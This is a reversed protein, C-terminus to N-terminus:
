AKAGKRIATVNDTAAPAAACYGAWANMLKVRKPFVSSRQYAEEVKDKLRHALAHEIVERPFATQEAAWVRFTSRFGHQTIGPRLNKLVKMGAATTMGKKLTPGPFVFDCAQPMAKLIAVARPSLPVVHEKHAKMREAPITWTKAQLDIEDWAAGVTEGPRTATLIQFELARAAQTDTARLEQIFAGIEAYPLASHHQVKKVKSPDPLMTKLHGRWRAPNEGERYKRATAWDLVAEIRQRVRTATETKKQWIPELCQLVLGTDIETVPLPKLVAAYKDLTAPWQAAHKPNKWEARKAEICKEACEGFTLRRAHALKADQLRRRREEIPDLGDRVIRRAEGAKDRAEALTVDRKGYPGLGMDRLKGTVRDRWRFVWTKRGDTKVLLYLGGGDAHRGPKTMKEVTTANLKERM